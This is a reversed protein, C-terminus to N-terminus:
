HVPWASLCFMDCGAEKHHGNNNLKFADSSHEKTHTHTHTVGVYEPWMEPSTYVFTIMNLVGFVTVVM